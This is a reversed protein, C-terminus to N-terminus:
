EEESKEAYHEERTKGFHIAACMFCFFVGCYYCRFMFRMPAKKGCQCTVSCGPNKKSERMQGAMIELQGVDQLKGGSGQAKDLVHKRNPEWHKEWESMGNFGSM